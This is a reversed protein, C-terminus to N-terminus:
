VHKLNLRPKVESLRAQQFKEASGFICSRLRWFMQSFYGRNGGRGATSRSTSSRGSFRRPFFHTPIRPFIWSSICAGHSRNGCRSKSTHGCFAISPLSSQWVTRSTICCPFMRRSLRPTPRDPMFTRRTRFVPFRHPSFCASLFSTPRSVSLLRKGFVKKRLLETREDSLPPAGSVTHSSTWQSM